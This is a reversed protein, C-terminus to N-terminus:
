NIFLACVYLRKVVACLGGLRALAARLDNKFCPKSLNNAAFRIHRSLNSPGVRAM